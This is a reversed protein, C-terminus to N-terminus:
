WCLFHNTKAETDNSIPIQEVKYQKKLIQKEDKFGIAICIYDHNLGKKLLLLIGASALCKNDYDSEEWGSFM